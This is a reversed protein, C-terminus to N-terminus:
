STIEARVAIEYTFKPLLTSYNTRNEKYWQPEHKELLNAFKFVDASYGKLCLRLAAQCEENIVASQAAQLVAIQSQRDGSLEMKEVVHSKVKINAKFHPVGSRLEVSVQTKANDVGLSMKEGDATSVLMQTEGIEDRLWLIGRTESHTAVGALRGGSFIATGLLEIGEDDNDDLTKAAVPMYCGTVGNQRAAAAHMIDGRLITGNIDSNDLMNKIALAPMVGESIKATLIEGASGNAMILDINPRSKLNAGFFALVESLGARAAERSLVIIKNQGYFIQKGQKLAAADIAQAISKGKTKVILSNTKGVDVATQSGGGDSSFIQLTLMYEGDAIDIGIGEIIARNNIRIPKMCGTCLLLIVLLIAFSKHAKRM